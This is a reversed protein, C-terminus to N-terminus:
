FEEESSEDLSDSSSFCEDQEVTEVTQLEVHDDDHDEEPVLVPPDVQKDTLTKLLDRGEPIPGRPSFCHILKDETGDLANSIGCTKFSSVILEKSVSAWADVVWQLYQEMPPPRPNGGQTLEKEISDDAMWDEHLRNIAAKFPKNWSVDPAQIYKTCGGPVVAQEVKMNKLVDKTEHSIHCRFSDWVLLRKSFSLSGIARQLFQKTLTNDMWVKGAWSLVLHSSFKKVIRDVTRKRKLLVFPKLKVGNAKACLMVTVRLKEHGLTQVTVDRAGRQEVCRKGIPDLWVATEDCAFINALEYHNDKRLQRVYHVFNAIKEASDVPPRQCTTTTARLSLNNRRLFKDLWGLSGSFAEGEPLENAFKKAQLIILRRSVLQRLRRKERIWELVRENVVKFKQSRGGGALRKRGGDSRSKALAREITSKSRRWEQIRRRHVGFKEAAARVSNSEAYKVAELKKKLCFSRKASGM